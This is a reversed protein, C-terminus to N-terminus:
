LPDVLWLASNGIRGGWDEIAKEALIGLWLLDFM